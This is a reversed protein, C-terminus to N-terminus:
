TVDLDTVESLADVLCGDDVRRLELIPLEAPDDVVRCFDVDIRSVVVVCTDVLLDPVEMAVLAVDVIEFGELLPKEDEEVAELLLLVNTVGVVLIVADELSVADALLIEEVEAVAELM